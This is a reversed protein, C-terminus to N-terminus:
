GGGGCGGGCGGSSCSGGASSVGDRSTPRQTGLETAFAPDAAWLSSTGYIAVGLAAGTPGYVQHDPRMRPALSAHASRLRKLEADGRDSRRPAISTLVLAGVATVGMMVLLFGIPDGATAVRLAGVAVVGWLMWSTRRIRRRQEGTLLLGTDALRHEIRTLAERVPPTRPLGIRPAPQDASRHIAQELDSGGPDLSGVAHVRHRGSTTISGQARMTVLATLVTLEPGGNLYAIHYPQTDLGPGPSAATSRALRRRALVTAFAAIVALAGYLGLFTPESIGWDDSTAAFATM